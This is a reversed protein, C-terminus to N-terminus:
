ETIVTAGLNDAATIVIDLPDDWSAALSSAFQRAGSDHPLIAFLTPGWSSQGVGAVGSQRIRDVLATLCPGNFPGGQLPAFCSGALVGYEYVAQSFEAFDEAAAAPVIRQEALRILEATVTPPVPPLSAFAQREASGHLGCPSAPRVLVFRWDAPLPVRRGLPSLVDGPLKGPEVLLGGQSFGYAGIASRLGRGSSVALEHPAVNTRGCFRFLCTAVALGLQTGTGLGVHPPPAALVQWRLPPLPGADQHQQWHAVFDAIRSALPGTLQTQDSREAVLTLGPERVMWGVGGFQRGAQGWSFLGCHLRSATQVTVRHVSAPSTSAKGTSEASYAPRPATSSRSSSPSM